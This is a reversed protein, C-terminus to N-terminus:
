FKYEFSVKANREPSHFREMGQRAYNCGLSKEKGDQCVMNSTGFTRISRANAWTMYDKNLLNYVGARITLGKIPKYFGILDLISYSGSRYKAFPSEGDIYYQNYTDKMKKAAVHTLYLDMGYDKDPSIYGVSLVQTDPQIANMPHYGNKGKIKGKQHTYKYGLSFGDLKPIFEDLFVKSDIEVGTVKAKQQNHNQYTLFEKQGGNKGVDFKEPGLYELDIFNKYDTRFAGLTVYSRDKHLTLALQKTNATEPKLDVNPFITFDPHRFTFFMEDSTPARFGNAYKAQVRLYDTPDVTAGLSYSHHTFKPRKSTLYKINEAPSQDVFLRKVMDDPIKPTKGITYEPKYAISDYRYGIDFGVKDNVRINDALYLAGKNTKVPILFSTPKLVRTSEDCALTNNANCTTDESFSKAWWTVKTNPVVRYYEINKMSKKSKTYSLGYNINNETDKIDISKELELRVDKTESVLDRKKYAGESFGTSAPLPIFMLNSGEWSAYQKGNLSKKQTLQKHTWQAKDGKSGGLTFTDVGQSCDVKSCDFWFENALNYNLHEKGTSDVLRSLSDTKSPNNSGRMFDVKGGQSDVWQGNKLTLGAPNKYSDCNEGGDCYEDTQATQTIKQQSLTLKASDWLPNSDYNEISLAINRRTNKDNTHRSEKEPVCMTPDRECSKVDSQTPALTYSWDTGKSHNKFDDYMVTLRNTENPNYSLKVLTSEKKITYPDAKQRARGQAGKEPVDPFNDYGYNELEHGKRDTRVILADFDKYKGAFTHSMMKENNQSAYSVKPSYYWDKDLLYDRADKTQFIVAGGLVGSGVKTSDAGKAFNVAKITEVELGNRTNNFNGYGEFLEKFGQSSLTEAQQLGDITINVRNEEVGRIAYGSSGMRGKEVVSVGTEYKVLDRTNSAQQKEITKTTKVTEGIKKNQINEDLVNDVVDVTDLTEVNDAFANPASLTISTCILYSLQKLRLMSQNEKTIPKKKSM